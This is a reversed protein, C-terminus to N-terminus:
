ITYVVKNKGEINDLTAVRAREDRECLWMVLEEYTKVVRGNKLRRKTFQQSYVCCPVVCWPINKAQAFEVIEGIAQDPHLGIILHCQTLIEQVKSPLEIENSSIFTDNTTDTHSVDDETPENDDNSGDEHQLGKTTWVIQKAKEIECKLWDEKQMRNDPCIFDLMEKSQFFCRIHDPRKSERYRCGEECAPYWKSFIPGIRQPEYMGKKWKKEVVDLNMPRPDIVVCQPVGTLNLLEWALEGKGGAVDVITSHQQTLFEMGYTQMLFIRFVSNKHQNRVLRRKGGWSTKQISTSTARDTPNHLFACMGVEFAPCRGLRNWHRCPPPPPLNPHHCHAHGWALSAQKPPQTNDNSPPVFCFIREGPHIASSCISCTIEYRSITTPISNPSGEM